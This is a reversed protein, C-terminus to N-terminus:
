APWRYQAQLADALTEFDAHDPLRNGYAAYQWMRVIAAFLDRDRADPMRRSARLVQAETAGPPLAVGTREVVTGVSARYLLALAQRPMGRAWLARARTAVDPPVVEPLVISDENVAPAAPAKRRASGSLWPLWRRATLLLAVVVIGLLLWLGWEAVMAAIKAAGGSMQKASQEDAERKLREREKRKAEEDDDKKRPEWESISRTPRQLPDEYARQVAQRFGATDVPVDGFIGAPTDAPDIAPPEEEDDDSAEEAREEDAAGADDHAHAQQAHVPVTAVPLAFLVVLLLLPMAQQLRERLRRFSIEVDWAEMQTRRNLYLGFGAGVHFPGMVSAALWLLLNMGFKAWAPTDQRVLEWAARWSDSLLEVPVFMFVATLAGIVLVAEFGMCLVTLLMSPGAAASLVARRRQGRHAADTGELLNVPLCVNRVASFRRWGLYGWFGAVQWGPQARLAQWATVPEGFVGRSLVYLVVREFAPKCWWLLLWAWGFGAGLWWALANALLFVPASALLWAGWAARWQRRALATGLEMAEWSGRARLVVNLQDIRM